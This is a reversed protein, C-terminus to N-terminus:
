LETSSILPTPKINKFFTFNILEQLKYCVDQATVSRWVPFLLLTWWVYYKWISVRGAVCCDTLYKVYDVNSFFATM